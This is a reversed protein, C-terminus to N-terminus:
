QEIQWLSRYWYDYGALLEDGGDGTLVVKVHPRAARSILYMPINSSDAFPEDYVRGIEKLLAVLDLHKDELETHETKYLEAIERAYPLENTADPFGFAFTRLRSHTQSAAAVVSSSTLREKSYGDSSRLRRQRRSPSRRLRYSGTGRWGCNAMKSCCLTPQRCCLYTATFQRTLICM